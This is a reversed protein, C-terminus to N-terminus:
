RSYMLLPQLISHQHSFSIGRIGFQGCVNQYFMRPYQIYLTHCPEETRLAVWAWVFTLKKPVTKNFFYIFSFNMFFLYLFSSFYFYYFITCSTKWAYFITFFMCLFVHLSYYWSLIKCTGLFIMGCNDIATIPRFHPKMFVCNSHNM